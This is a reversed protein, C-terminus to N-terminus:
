LYLTYVGEKGTVDLLPNCIGECRIILVITVFNPLFKVDLKDCPIGM